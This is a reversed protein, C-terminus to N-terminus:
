HGAVDGAGHHSEAQLRLQRAFDQSDGLDERDAWLGVLGSQSLDAATLIPPEAQHLSDLFGLVEGWREPPIQRLSNIIAQEDIIM